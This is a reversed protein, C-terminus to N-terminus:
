PGPPPPPAGADGRAGGDLPRARIGRTAIHIVPRGPGDDDALTNSGAGLTFPRHPHRAAAHVIDPWTTPDTHPLWLPAPGGLRLTTHESLAPTRM